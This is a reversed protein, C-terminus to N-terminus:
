KNKFPEFIAGNVSKSEQLTIPIATKYFTLIYYICVLYQVYDLIFIVSFSQLPSTKHVHDYGATVSDWFVTTM